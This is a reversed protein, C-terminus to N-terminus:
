RSPADWRARPARWPTRAATWGRRGLPHGLCGLSRADLATRIALRRARSITDDYPHSQTQNWFQGPQWVSIPSGGVACPILRVTITPDAEALTIGFTRGLGVGAFPKDFHVPDIAPTWAGAATLALVRPHAVRDEDEVIGRGAMNSQGALLFLHSDNRQEVTAPLSDKKDMVDHM